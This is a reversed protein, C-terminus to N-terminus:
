ARQLSVLAEFMMRARDEAREDELLRSSHHYGLALANFEFAFQDADTKESFDGEAIAGRVVTAISDLWDRQTRVLADRMPGPRDDYEASGTIYICGGKLVSAWTLWHEFLALVRAEGRPVNLTPRMVTDVFLQRSHDLTQLQLQEKSKFHAFLGSKSMGTQEALHGITLAEFGILSALQMSEDLIVTRTELGKSV